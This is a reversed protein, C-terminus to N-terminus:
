QWVQNYVNLDEAFGYLKFSEAERVFELTFDGSVFVEDYDRGHQEGLKRTLHWNMGKFPRVKMNEFRVGYIVGNRCNHSVMIDFTGFRFKVQDLALSLTNDRVTAIRIPDIFSDFIAATDYSMLLALGEPGGDVSKALDRLEAELVRPTLKAGAMNTVNTTIFTDIGGMTAPVPNASDANGQQRGGRWIALELQLKLELQKEALDALMPDTSHEWTPMNRAAKDARVGDFFRQFYNFQQVGRAIAGITHEQLEPEASGIVFVKAGQSHAQATSGSMGRRVTLTDGPPDTEVIMIERTTEDLESTSGTKFDIVEIVHWKHFLKGEGTLVPLSTTTNDIANALTSELAIRRSEGWRHPRTDVEKGVGIRTLLPTRRPQYAEAWKDIRIILNADPTTGGPVSTPYTTLGQRLTTTM